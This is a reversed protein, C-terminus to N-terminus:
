CQFEKTIKFGGVFYYIIKDKDNRKQFSKNMKISVDIHETRRTNAKLDQLVDKTKRKRRLIEKSHIKKLINLPNSSPFWAGIKRSGM